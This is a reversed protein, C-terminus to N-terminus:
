RHWVMRETKSIFRMLEGVREVINNPMQETQYHSNLEAYLTQTMQRM